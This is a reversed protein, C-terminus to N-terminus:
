EHCTNTYDTLQVITDSDDKPPNCKHDIDLKKLRYISDITNKIQSVADFYGKDYGDKIAAKTGKIVKELAAIKRKLRDNENTLSIVEKLNEEEIEKINEIISRM